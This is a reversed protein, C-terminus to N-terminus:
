ETAFADFGFGPPKKITFLQMGSSTTRDLFLAGAQPGTPSITTYNPDLVAALDIWWRGAPPGGSRGTGGNWIDVLVLSGVPQGVIQAHFGNFRRDGLEGWYLTAMSEYDYAEPTGRAPANAGLTALYTESVWCAGIMQGGPFRPGITTLGGQSRDDDCQIEQIQIQGARVASPTYALDIPVLRSQPFKTAAPDDAWWAVRTVGLLQGVYAGFCYFVTRM